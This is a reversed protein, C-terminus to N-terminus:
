LGIDIPGGAGGNAIVAGLLGPLKRPAFLANSAEIEALSWWKHGVVCDDARAPRYDAFVTRAIFFLETYEEAQPLGGLNGADAACYRRVWVIPGLSVGFGVEEAIERQLATSYSEGAELGGGPTVWIEQGCVMARLLLVRNAGDLILARAAHRHKLGVSRLRRQPRALGLRLQRLGGDLEANLAPPGELPAWSLRYLIPASGSHPHEEFHDWVQHESESRDLLHFYHRRHIRGSPRRHLQVGLARVLTLHSLGTEEQAERLVAHELTEGPEVTGGPVQIGAEPSHPEEFVVFKDGRTIYAIAKDVCDVSPAATARETAKQAMKVWRTVEDM